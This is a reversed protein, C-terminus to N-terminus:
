VRSDLGTGLDLVGPHWGRGAWYKAPYVKPRILASRREGVVWSTSSYLKIVWSDPRVSWRGTAMRSITDEPSSSAYGLWIVPMWLLPGSVARQRCGQATDGGDFAWHQPLVPSPPPAVTLGMSGPLLAARCSQPRESSLSEPRGPAGPQRVLAMRELRSKEVSGCCLRTQLGLILILVRNIYEKDRRLSRGPNRVKTQQWHQRAHRYGRM